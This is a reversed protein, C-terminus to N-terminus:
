EDAAEMLEILARYAKRLHKEVTSLGMEMEEAIKPQTVGGLRHRRFIGATPEGLEDLKREVSALQERALLIRDAAPEDSIGPRASGTADAWSGDRRRARIEGRRWDLLLNHLLRYVYSLPENVLTGAALAADLRLWAEQLLDEAQDGAGAHRLFSLLRTRNESFLAELSPRPHEEPEETM